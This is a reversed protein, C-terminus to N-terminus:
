VDGVREVPIKTRDLWVVGEGVVQWTAASDSDFDPDTADGETILDDSDAALVGPLNWVAPQLVPAQDNGTRELAREPEFVAGVVVTQTTSETEDGINSRTTTVHTLTVTRPARRQSRM